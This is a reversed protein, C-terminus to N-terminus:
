LICFFYSISCIIIFTFNSPYPILSMVMHDWLQLAALIKYRLHFSKIHLPSFNKYQRSVLFKVYDSFNIKANHAVM